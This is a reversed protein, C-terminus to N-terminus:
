SQRELPLCMLSPRLRQIEMGGKRSLRFNKMGLRILLM